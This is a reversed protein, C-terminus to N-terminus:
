LSRDNAEIEQEAVFWDDLDQGHHGGRSHFLEYARRAIRAHVNGNTPQSNMSDTDGPIMSEQVELPDERMSTKKRSVSKRKAAFPSQRPTEDSPQVSRKKAM